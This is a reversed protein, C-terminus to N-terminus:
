HVEKLYGQTELYDKVENAFVETMKDGPHGNSPNAQLEITSFNGLKKDVPGYLDLCEFGAKLLIPKVIEFREKCGSYSASPTMVVLAKVNHQALYNRFETLLQQYEDMNKKAYLADMWNHYANGNATNLFSRALPPFIKYVLPYERSADSGNVQAIKGMDPDNDVWGIILLDIDYDKGHEKFFNFEDLTSWGSKGWSMVELSDYKALLKQELKHSWVKEYPVGDGWIFSDGLVAIRFVGKPKAPKREKDTFGFPNARAYTRNRENTKENLEFSHDDFTNFSDVVASILAVLVVGFIAGALIKYVRTRKASRM